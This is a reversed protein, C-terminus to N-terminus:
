IMGHHSMCLKWGYEVQQGKLTHSEDRFGTVRKIPCSLPKEKHRIHYLIFKGNISCYKEQALNCEGCHKPIKNLAILGKM